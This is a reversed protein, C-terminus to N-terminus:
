VAYIHTINFINRLYTSGEDEPNFDTIQHTETYIYCETGFLLPPLPSLTSVALEDLGCVCLRRGVNRIFMISGDETNCVLLCALLM